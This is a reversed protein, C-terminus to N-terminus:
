RFLINGPKVDALYIGYREFAAMILEVEPWDDGFQERKETAWDEMVEASYDPRRDLYASAFDLVFPPRVITMEVIWLSDDHNVLRPVTSGRIDFVACDRLRWYVDRERQYSRERYHVKIASARDTAYVTGQSGFGLRSELKLPHRQAYQEARMHINDTPDVM